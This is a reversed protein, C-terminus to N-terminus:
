LSLRLYKPSRIKSLSTIALMVPIHSIVSICIKFEGNLEKTIEKWMERKPFNDTYGLPPGKIIPQTKNKEKTM